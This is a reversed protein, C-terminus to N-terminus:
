KINQKIIFYSFTENLLSALKESKENGLYEVLGNIMHVMQQKNEEVFQNGADTTKVRVIRRDSTDITREILNKQELSTIVPTISPPKVCLSQSISSVSVGEPYVKELNSLEHILMIESHKLGHHTHNPNFSNENMKLKKFQIFAKILNISASETTSKDQM